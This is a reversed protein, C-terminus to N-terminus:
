CVYYTTIAHKSLMCKKNIELSCRFQLNNFHNNSWGINKNNDNNNNYIYVYIHNKGMGRRWNRQERLSHVVIACVFLM